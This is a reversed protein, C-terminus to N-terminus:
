ISLVDTPRSRNFRLDTASQGIRDPLLHYVMRNGTSNWWSFGTMLGRRRMQRQIRLDSALVQLRVSGKPRTDLNRARALDILTVLDRDLIAGVILRQLPGGAQLVSDPLGTLYEGALDLFRRRHDADSDPLYAVMRRLDILVVKAWHAEQLSEGGFKLALADVARLAAMRQELNDPESLRQTISRDGGTRRRWIYVPEPVSDTSRAAAHM